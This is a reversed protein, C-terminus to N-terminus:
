ILDYEEEDDINLAYTDKINKAVLYADIASKKAQKAKELANNYLEMYIENPKKLEINEESVNNDLNIEFEDLESIKNYNNIEKKELDLDVEELNEELNNDEVELTESEKIKENEIIKKDEEKENSINEEKTKILCNEFIPANEMIMIQKINIELQFYRQSFKIGLIELITIIDSDMTIDELDKAVEKENFIPVVNDITNRLSNLNARLLYNKGKYVKVPSVFSNQIDEMELDTNAFWIDHKKFIMEQIKEEVKTITEIFDSNLESFLLDTYKKKGTKVIGQKTKCKPTQLYFQDDNNNITLKSFYTGGQNPVPNSLKFNTTDLSEGVKYIM